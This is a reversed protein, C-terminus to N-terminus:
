LIIHITKYSSFQVPKFTYKLLHKGDQNGMHCTRRIDFLIGFFLSNGQIIGVIKLVGVGCKISYRARFIRLYGRWRQISRVPNSLFAPVNPNDRSYLFKGLEIPNIRRDPLYAVPERKRDELGSLLGFLGSLRSLRSLGFLRFRGSLGFSFPM